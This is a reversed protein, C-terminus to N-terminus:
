TEPLLDVCKVFAAPLVQGYQDFAADIEGFSNYDRHEIITENSDLLERVSGLHDMAAWLSDLYGDEPFFVDDALLQDRGPGWTYRRWLSEDRFM